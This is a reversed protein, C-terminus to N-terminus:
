AYDKGSQYTLAEYLQETADWNQPFSLVSKIPQGDLKDGVNVPYMTLYVKSNIVASTESERVYLNKGYQFCKIEVPPGYTPRRTNTDLALRPELIATFSMYSDFDIM